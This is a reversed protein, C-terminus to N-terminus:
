SSPIIEMLQFHTRKLTQDDLVKPTIADELTRHFARILQSTGLNHANYQFLAAGVTIMLLIPLIGLVSAIYM